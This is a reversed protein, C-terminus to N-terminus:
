KETASLSIADVTKKRRLSMIFRHGMNKRMHKEILEKKPKGFQYQSIRDIYITNGHSYQLKTITTSLTIQSGSKIFLM